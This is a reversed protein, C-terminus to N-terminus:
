KPSCFWSLIKLNGSWRCRNCSLMRVHAKFVIPRGLVQSFDHTINQLCIIQVFVGVNAKGRVNEVFPKEIGGLRNCETAQRNASM